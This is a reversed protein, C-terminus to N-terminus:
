EDIVMPESDAGLFRSILFTVEFAQDRGNVPLLRKQKYAGEILKEIEWTAGAKLQKESPSQILPEDGHYEFVGIAYRKDGIRKIAVTDSAIETDLQVLTKSTSMYTDEKKNSSYVM